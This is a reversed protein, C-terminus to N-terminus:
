RKGGFPILAVAAALLIPLGSPLLPTTFIAVVAGLAALQWQNKLRPWLLGL